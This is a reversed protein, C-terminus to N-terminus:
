RVEQASLDAIHLAAHAARLSLEADALHRRRAQTLLSSLDLAALRALPWFGSEVNVMLASTVRELEGRLGFSHVRLTSVLEALESTLEQIPLEEDSSFITRQAPRAEIRVQLGFDLAALAGLSARSPRRTTFLQPM